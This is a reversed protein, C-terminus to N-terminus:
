SLYVLSISFHYFNLEEFVIFFWDLSFSGFQCMKWREINSIKLQYFRFSGNTIVTFTILTYVNMFSICDVVFPVFLVLNDTNCQRSMEVFNDSAWPPVRGSWSTQATKIPVASVLREFWHKKKSRSHKFRM